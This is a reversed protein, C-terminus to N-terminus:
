DAKAPIHRLPARRPGMLRLTFLFTLLGVALLGVMRPTDPGNSRPTALEATDTQPYEAAARLYELTVRERGRLVAKIVGMANYRTKPQVWQQGGSTVLGRPMVAGIAVAIVEGPATRIYSCSPYHDSHAYSRAWPWNARLYQIDMLDGPKRPGRLVETIRLAYDRAGQDAELHLKAQAFDSVVRGVVIERASLLAPTIKPWPPIFSCEASVTAPVITGLAIMLPLAMVVRGVKM